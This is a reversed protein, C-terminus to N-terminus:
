PLPGRGRQAPPADVDRFGARNPMEIELLTEADLPEDAPHLGNLALLYALVDWTAADDLSGPADPPMARQVYDFLPPLVPWLAAIGRDPWDSTLSEHEGVLEMARGGQGQAGHCGACGQRYLTAGRAAIGQGDPLGQGDAYIPPPLVAGTGPVSGTNEAGSAVSTYSTLCLLAAPAIRPPGRHAARPSTRRVRRVPDTM